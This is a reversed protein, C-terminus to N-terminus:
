NAGVLPCVIDTISSDQVALFNDATILRNDISQEVGVDPVPSAVLVPSNEPFDWVAKSGGGNESKKREEIEHEFLGTEHILIQM